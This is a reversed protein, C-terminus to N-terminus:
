VTVETITCQVTLAATPAAGVAYATLTGNNNAVYLANVGDSVLQAIAAADPQLDVKSNATITYGSITVTQTYPGSGTWTTSLSLIKVVIAADGRDGKPGQPGTAGTAGQPGTEGQIGQIGQIGQEGQPGTAGTDGKDGKPGQPGTLAALQEPTFDSYTFPDGKEGKEGTDGKDGKPGTMGTAGQPGVPGPDGKDGKIVGYEPILVSASELEGVHVVVDSM